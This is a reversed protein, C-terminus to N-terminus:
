GQFGGPTEATDGIGRGMSGAYLISLSSLLDELAEIGESAAAAFRDGFPQEAIAGAEAAAGFLRLLM